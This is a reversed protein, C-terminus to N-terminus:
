ALLCSTSQWFKRKHQLLIQSLVKHYHNWIGAFALHTNCLEQRALSVQEATSYYLTLYLYSYLHLSVGSGVYPLLRNIIPYLPKCIFLACSLTLVVLAIGAVFVNPVEAVEEYSFNSGAATCVAICTVHCFCLFHLFSIVHIPGM